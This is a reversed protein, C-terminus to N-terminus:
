PVRLLREAAAKADEYDGREYDEFGEEVRREIEIREETSLDDDADAPVLYLETGDPLDAKEEIVYRGNVVKAKLPHL